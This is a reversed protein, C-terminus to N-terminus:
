YLFLLKGQVSCYNSSPRRPKENELKSCIPRRHNVAPGDLRTNFYVSGGEKLDAVCGFPVPFDGSGGYIGGLLAAAQICTEITEVNALPSDCKTGAEGYFYSM